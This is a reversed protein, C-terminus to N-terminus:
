RSCGVPVTMAANKKANFMSRPEETAESQCAPAEFAATGLAAAARGNAPISQVSKLLAM